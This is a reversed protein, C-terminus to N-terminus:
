IRVVIKGNLIILVNIGVSLSHYLCILSFYLSVMFFSNFLHFILRLFSVLFAPHCSVVILASRYYKSKLTYEHIVKRLHKVFCSPLVNVGGRPSFVENQSVNKTVLYIRSWYLQRYQQMKKLEQFYNVWLSKRRLVTGSKSASSFSFLAFVEIQQLPKRLIFTWKQM